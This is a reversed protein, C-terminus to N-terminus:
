SIPSLNKPGAMHFIEILQDSLKEVAYRDILKRQAASVQDFRKKPSQILDDFAMNWENDGVLYGCGDACCQDYILGRSAIVAAGVATYEIWKNINKVRNFDTAVLPCIGIDWHRSALKQLFMQYNSVVPLMTVRHGFQELIKPKPIKGFLEFRLQPYTRMVTCLSPLVIELDHVHDFGMYGIVTAQREVAPSIVDGACFIEGTQINSRIGLAQLRAKLRDNSCYVLNVTDLLYRVGKRRLPHNHYDYKEKGLELPVNLLDDDICYISPIRQLEATSRIEEFHPGSYRCFVLHTPSKNLIQKKVWTAAKASHVNRGFKRVMGQETLFDILCQGNSIRSALPYILSLQVTPILSNAVILIRMSAM